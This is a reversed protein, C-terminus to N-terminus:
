GEKRFPRMLLASLSLKAKRAAAELERFEAATVNVMIHRSYKKAKAKRPRGTRKADAAIQAPTRKRKMVV